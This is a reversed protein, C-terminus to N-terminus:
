ALEESAEGLLASFGGYAGFSTGLVMLVFGLGKKAASQEGDEKKQEINLLVYGGLFLSGGLLALLANALFAGLGFAFAAKFDQWFTM